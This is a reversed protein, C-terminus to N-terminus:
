HPIWVNMSPEMMTVQAILEIQTREGSGTGCCQTTSCQEKQPAVLPGNPLTSPSNLTSIHVSHRGTTM